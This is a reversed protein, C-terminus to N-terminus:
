DGDEIRWRGDEGRRRTKGIIGGQRIRARRPISGM